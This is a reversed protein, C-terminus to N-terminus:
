SLFAVSVGLVLRGPYLRAALIDPRAFNFATMSHGYCTEGDAVDFYAM